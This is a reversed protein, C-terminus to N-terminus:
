RWKSQWTRWSRLMYVVFFAVLIFLICILVGYVDDLSRGGSPIDDPVAETSEFIETEPVFLPEPYNEPIYYSSM